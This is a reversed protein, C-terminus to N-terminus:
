KLLGAEALAIAAIDEGAIKVAVEWLPRLPAALDYNGRHKRACEVIVREVFKREQKTLIKRMQMLGKTILVCLMAHQDAM